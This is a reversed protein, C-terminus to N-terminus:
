KGCKFGLKEKRFALMRRNYEPAYAEALARLRSLEPGQDVDTFGPIHSVDLSSLKCDQDVGPTHPKTDNLELFRYDKRQAAARSDREPNAQYLWRLGAVTKEGSVVRLLAKASTENAERPHRALLANLTELAADYQTTQFLAEALRLYGQEFGPDLEIARRYLAIAGSVNHEREALVGLSYPGMPSRPKLQAAKGYADAAEALKGLGALADGYNLYARASWPAGAIARRSWALEAEYDERAGYMSAISNLLFPVLAILVAILLVLRVAKKAPTNDFLFRRLASRRTITQTRAPEPAPM